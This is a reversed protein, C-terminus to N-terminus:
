RRRNRRHHRRRRHRRRRRRRRRSLFPTPIPRESLWSVQIQAARCDSEARWVSNGGPRRSSGRGCPDWGDHAQSLELAALKAPGDGTLVAM